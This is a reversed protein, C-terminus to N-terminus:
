AARGETTAIGCVAAVGRRSLFMSHRSSKSAGARRWRGLGRRGAAGVEDDVLDGVVLDPRARAAEDLEAQIKSAKADLQSAILKPVGVFIVIGLFILLGVGVWLEPEALNYFHDFELFAPM